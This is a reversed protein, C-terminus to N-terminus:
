KQNNGNSAITSSALAIEAEGVLRLFLAANVQVRLEYLRNARSFVWQLDEDNSSMSGLLKLLERHDSSRMLGALGLCQLRQGVSLQSFARELAGVDQGVDSWYGCFFSYSTPHYLRRLLRHLEYLTLFSIDNGIGKELFASALLKKAEASPAAWLSSVVLLCAVQRSSYAAHGVIEMLFGACAEPDPTAAYRELVKEFPEAETTSAPNTESM